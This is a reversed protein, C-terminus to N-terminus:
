ILFPFCRILVGIFLAIAVATTAALSLVILPAIALHLAARSRGLRRALRATASGVLLGSAILYSLLLSLTLLERDTGEVSSQILAHLLQGGSYRYLLLAPAGWSCVAGCLSVV